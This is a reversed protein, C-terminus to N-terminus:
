CPQFYIQMRPKRDTPLVRSFLSRQKLPQIRAVTSPRLDPNTGAFRILIVPLFDPVLDSSVLPVGSTTSDLKALLKPSSNLYFFYDPSHSKQWWVNGKCQINVCPHCQWSIMWNKYTKLIQFTFIIKSRHSQINLACCWQIQSVYILLM